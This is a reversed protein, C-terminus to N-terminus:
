ARRARDTARRVVLDPWGDGNLDSVALRTGVVGLAEFSKEDTVNKFAPTQRDEWEGPADIRCRGQDPLQDMEEFALAQDADPGLEGQEQDRTVGLDKDGEDDEEIIIVIPEQPNGPSSCALPSIIVAILIAASRSLSDSM